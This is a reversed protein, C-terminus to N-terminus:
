LSPQSEPDEDTGLVYYTVVDGAATEGTLTLSRMCGLTAMAQNFSDETGTYGGAVAAAYASRGGQGRRGFLLASRLAVLEMMAQENRAM